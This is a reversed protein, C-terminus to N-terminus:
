PRTWPPATWPRVCTTIRTASCQSAPSTRNNGPAEERGSEVAISDVPWVIAGHPNNAGHANTPALVLDGHRDLGASASARLGHIFRETRDAFTKPEGWWEGLVEDPLDPLLQSLRSALPDCHEAMIYGDCDAHTLLVIHPNEPMRAWEGTTAKEADLADWNIRRASWDAHRQQGGSRLVLAEDKYGAVEALM